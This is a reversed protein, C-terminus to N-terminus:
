KFFYTERQLTTVDINVGGVCFEHKKELNESTDDNQCVKKGPKLHRLVKCFALYMQFKEFFTAIENSRPSM